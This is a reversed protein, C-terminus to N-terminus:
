VTAKGCVRSVNPVEWIYRTQLPTFGWGCSSWGKLGDFEGRPNGGKPGEKFNREGAATGEPEVGLSEQYIAHRAQEHDV